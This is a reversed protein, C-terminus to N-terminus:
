QYEYPTARYMAPRGSATSRSQRVRGGCPAPTRTAVPHWTPSCEKGVDRPRCGPNRTESYQVQGPGRGDCRFKGTVGTCSLFHGAILAEPKLHLLSEGVITAEHIEIAATHARRWVNDLLCHFTM